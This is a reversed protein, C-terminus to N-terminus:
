DDVGWRTLPHSPLRPDRNPLCLTTSFPQFLNCRALRSRRSRRTQDCVGCLAPKLRGQFLCMTKSFLFGSPIVCFCLMISCSLCFHFIMWMRLPSRAPFLSPQLSQSFPTCYQVDNPLKPTILLFQPGTWPVPPFPPVPPSYSIRNRYNGGLRLCM